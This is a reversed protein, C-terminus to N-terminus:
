PAQFCFRVITMWVYVKTLVVEVLVVHLKQNLIMQTTIAVIQQALIFIMRKVLISLVVEVM